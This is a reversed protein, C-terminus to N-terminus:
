RIRIAVYPKMGWTTSVTNGCVQNKGSYKIAGSKIDFTDFRSLTERASKGQIAQKIVDATLEKVKNRVEATFRQKVSSSLSSITRNVLTEVWYLFPAPNSSYVSVGAAVVGQLVDKEAIDDAWGAVWGGSVIKDKQDFKNTKYGTFGCSIKPPWSGWREIELNNIDTITTGSYENQWGGYDCGSYHHWPYYATYLPYTRVPYQSYYNCPQSFQNYPVVYPVYSNILLNIGGLIKISFIM